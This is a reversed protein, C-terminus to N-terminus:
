RWNDIDTYYESPLSYILIEEPEPMRQNSRTPHDRSERTFMEVVIKKAKDDTIGCERLERIKQSIDQLPADLTPHQSVIENTLEYIPQKSISM